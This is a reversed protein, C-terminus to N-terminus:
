CWEKNDPINATRDSVSVLLNLKILYISFNKIHEKAMEMQIKQIWKIIKYFFNKFRLNTQFTTKFAENSKLLKWDSLIRFFTNRKKDFVDIDNYGKM